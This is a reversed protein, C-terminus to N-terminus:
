KITSEADVKDTTHLGVVQKQSFIVRLNNAKSIPVAYIQNTKICHIDINSFHVSRFIQDIVLYRWLPTVHNIIM